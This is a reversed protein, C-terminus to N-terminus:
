LDIQFKKVFELYFQKLLKNMDETDFANEKSVARKKKSKLSSTYELSFLLGYPHEYNKTKERWKEVMDYIWKPIPRNEKYYDKDIRYFHIRIDRSTSGKLRTRRITIYHEGDEMHLCEYPIVCAEMVRLPIISTLMWYFVLPFYYNKQEETMNNLWADRIIHDLVYYSKFENMVCPHKRDNRDQKNRTCITSYETECEDIYEKNGWATTKLFDIMYFLPTGHDTNKPRSIGAKFGSAAYEELIYRVMISLTKQNCTGFRLLVLTKLNIIFVKYDNEAMMQRIKEKKHGFNVGTKCRGETFMMWKESEYDSLLQGARVAARYKDMALKQIREENLDKVPIRRTVNGETYSHITLM